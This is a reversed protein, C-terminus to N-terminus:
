YNVFQHNAEAKQNRIFQWLPVGHQGMKAILRATYDLDGVGGSPIKGYSYLQELEELTFVRSYTLTYAYFDARRQLTPWEVLGMGTCQSRLDIKIELSKGNPLYFDFPHKGETPILPYGQYQFEHALVEQNYQGIILAKDFTPFVKEM